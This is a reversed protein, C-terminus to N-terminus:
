VLLGHDRPRRLTSAVAEELLHAVQLLLGEAFPRGALQVGVPLGDATLGCPVALAPLGTLNFPGTFRILAGM